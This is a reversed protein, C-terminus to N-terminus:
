GERSQKLLRYPYGTEFASVQNLENLEDPQLQIDSAGLNDDLQGMTRVGIIVSAVAPQVLLWAIAIQSPSANYKAALNNVVDLIQWNQDKNRRWWAEEVDDPMTAIRGKDPHDGQHYKGSLFGGGLPGWPTIGIGESLCLDVFEPEIDRVVLSYQYQAAIFRVWGNSNSMGLAKMLQWAKFNSVGIYQVKGSTVLDDFARLSEEIPTLPDWSHMYLLDITETALRKLSKEVSRLIHYRSLGLDNPGKGGSRFRVKTALVVQERKNKIAKGIIEESHGSAYVNATDIHNGGADLFRHIIKEAENPPTSRQSEEGFIMTGLALESVLLGSHGLPRYRM